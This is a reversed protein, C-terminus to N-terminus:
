LGTLFEDMGATVWRLIDVSNVPDDATELSHDADPIELVTAGTSRAVGSDWMKDATGGVLLAPASAKRIPGAVREHTLVPTLWIGPTGLRAADAAGFTGLSKGVFLGPAVPEEALARSVQDHVYAEAEDLGTWSALPPNWWIEKVTWGHDLLVARAFHLLPSAPTYRGGPLVLALRGPGRARRSRDPRHTRTSM